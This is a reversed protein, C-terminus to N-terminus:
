MVNEAELHIDLNIEPRIFKDGLSEDNGYVLGWNTRDINFNADAVVKGESMNVKAPFTISKTVGKLTLNGTIMHTADKMILDDSQTVGETVSTIEFTGTPFQEVDFFDGSMLHGDLKKAYEDQQDDSKISTLDIVYSGGTINGDAVTLSGEKIQVFGHHQAVPKTGIWEVTSSNLNVGYDAGTVSSVEQADSTAAIDAEPADACSALLTVAALITLSFRKNYM